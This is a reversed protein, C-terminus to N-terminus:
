EERCLTVYVSGTQMASLLLNAQEEDLVVNFNTTASETDSNQIQLGDKDFVKSVYIRKFTPELIKPEHSVSVSAKGEEKMREEKDYTIGWMTDNEEENMTYDKDVVYIDIYDSARLIGNVGGAISDVEFGVERTGEEVDSLAGFNNITLIGNKPIFALAFSDKIDELNTVANSPVITSDVSKTMFVTPETIQTGKAIDTNAMYVTTKDYKGLVANETAILMGYLGCSLLLAILGIILFVKGKQGLKIKKGEKSIKKM